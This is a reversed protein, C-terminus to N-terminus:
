TGIKDGARLEWHKGLYVGYGSVWYGYGAREMRKGEHGKGWGKIDTNYGGRWVGLLLSLLSGLRPSPETYIFTAGPIEGICFRTFAFPLCVSASFSLRM